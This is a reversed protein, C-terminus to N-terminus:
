LSETLRISTAFFRPVVRGPRRFKTGAIHHCLGSFLRSNDCIDEDDAPFCAVPAVAFVDFQGKKCCSGIAM